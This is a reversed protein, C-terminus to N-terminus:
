TLAREVSWGKFLRQSLTVDKIGLEEAWVVLPLSRGGHTLVRNSRTNRMQTKQDSWRVNAPQYDGDNDLPAPQRRAPAALAPPGGPRRSFARVGAGRAVQCVGQGRARRLLRVRPLQPQLVEPAHRELRRVGQAEGEAPLVRAQGSRAHRLRQSVQM